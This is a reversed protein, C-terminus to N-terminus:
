IKMIEGSVAAIRTNKVTKALKAWSFGSSCSVRGLGRPMHHATLTIPASLLEPLEPDHSGLHIARGEPEVIENSRFVLNMGGDFASPRRLAGWNIDAVELEISCLYDDSDYSLLGLADRALDAETPIGVTYSTLVNNLESARTLWVMPFRGRLQAGPRLIKSLDGVKTLINLIDEATNVDQLGGISTFDFWLSAMYEDLRFVCVLPVRSVNILTGSFYLSCGSISDAALKSYAEGKSAAAPLPNIGIVGKLYLIFKELLAKDVNGADLDIGINDLFLRGRDTNRCATVWAALTM